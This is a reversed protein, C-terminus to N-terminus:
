RSYPAICRLTLFRVPSVLTNWPTPQKLHSRCSKQCSRGALDRFGLSWAMSPLDLVFYHYLERWSRGEQRFLHDLFSVDFWANYGTFLVHREGVAKRHFQIIEAVAEQGTVYGLAEWRQASFGNVAVAGPSAREPHEPMVRLFLRDLETGELDTIIIGIDIMENYGPVLGTTEVDVHAMLWDDPSNAPNTEAYGLRDLITVFEPPSASAPMSLMLVLLCFCLRCM